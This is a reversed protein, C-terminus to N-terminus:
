SGPATVEAGRAKLRDLVGNARLLYNLDIVAVTRGPKALAAMIAEVGQQAGREILANVSPVQQVCRELAPSGYAARVGRLDGVAWAQALVQANSAESEVQVVADELCALAATQDLRVAERALPALRYDGIERVPVRHARALKILTSGPKASSLGAAERFDAVLMFGAVQPKWRGYRKPEQRAAVRAAIFRERLRPPLSQELPAENRFKGKGGLVLGAADLVGIKPRPPILLAKAGDLAREVRITNWALSHPLPTVGGLIIVESDGRAVRWLAPGPPRAVVELAEVVASGLDIEPTPAQASAPAAALAAAILLPSLRRTM